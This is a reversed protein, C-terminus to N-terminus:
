SGARSIRVVREVGALDPTIRVEGQEPWGDVLQRVAPAQDAGVELLAAGQPALYTPLAAVLRRILDLGDIGGDLALRPEFRLSGTGSEAETTRLYPLNAIVLDLVGGRPAADLLDGGVLALLGSVGLATANEAALALADPSLDSATLSLRGLRLGTRFRRALAVAVGGGGTAVEWARIPAHNRAMRTDIERIAQDVLLETEPRPILARPDTAMRLGYWEKFGRIYAVPEGGARREVLVGILDAAEAALDVEPHALLWTRDCGLAHAALVQADLAATASGADRLRATAAVVVERVRTRTAAEATM